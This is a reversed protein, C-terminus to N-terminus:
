ITPRGEPDRETTLVGAPKHYRFLRTREPAALAEGDVTVISDPTVVV